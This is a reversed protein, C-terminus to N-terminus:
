PLRPCSRPTIVRYCSTLRDYPRHYGLQAYTEPTGGPDCGTACTNLKDPTIVDTYGTNVLIKLAPQLADALPTGLHIPIGVVEFLANLLHAPLRLPELLPLDNPAFTSYTTFSNNLTLLAILKNVITDTDTGELTGGGLLYTPLLTALM